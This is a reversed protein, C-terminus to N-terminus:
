ETKNYIKSLLYARAQMSLKNEFLEEIAEYLKNGSYYFRDSYYSLLKDLESHYDTYDSSLGFIHSTIIGINEGFTQIEPRKIQIIDGKRQIVYVNTYLTEQLVVPSHTAVIMFANKKNLIYRISKMLIALLPPHLHSEPEDFLVISRPDINALLNTLSHLVFKHGTSLKLFFEKLDMREPSFMEQNLLNYFSPEERLYTLITSFLEKKDKKVNIENISRVFEDSLSENSKLFTVKQRDEIIEQETLKGNSDVKFDSITDNLEKSVDRIGCFIYRGIGKNIEKAIQEKEQLNIGPVRFNDFSSYSISIIKPFGLGNPEIIGVQKLANSKRDISSAFAIRAIKSLLTSKGSGNRGIIVIIRNPLSEDNFTGYKPSDFQFKIPEMLGQIKFDFALELSPLQKFDKSILIPALTFLDDNIDISRFLSIKWGDEDEFGIKNKPFIVVDRLAFLIKDILMKDLQAIREYYDLSQGLSCFSSDLSEIPGTELILSDLKTQGKKLIKVSGIYIPEGDDTQNGSLHLHYLTQFNYDNWNDRELYFTAKPESKSLKNKSWNIVEIFM